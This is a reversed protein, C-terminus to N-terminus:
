VKGASAGKVQSMQPSMMNGTMIKLAGKYCARRFLVRRGAPHAAEEM